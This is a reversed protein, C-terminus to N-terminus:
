GNGVMAGSVPCVSGGRAVSLSTITHKKLTGNLNLRVTRRCHSCRAWRRPRDM